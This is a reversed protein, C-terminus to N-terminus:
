VGFGWFGLVGFGWSPVPFEFKASDFFKFITLQACIALWADIFNSYFAALLAVSYQAYALILEWSESPTSLPGDLVLEPCFVETWTDFRSQQMFKKLFPNLRFGLREAAWLVEPSCLSLTISFFFDPQLPLSTLCWLSILLKSVKM